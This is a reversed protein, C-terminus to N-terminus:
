RATAQRYSVDEWGPEPHEVYDVFEDWLTYNVLWVSLMSRRESLREQARQVQSTWIADSQRSIARSALAVLM